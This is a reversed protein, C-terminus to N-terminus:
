KEENSALIKGPAAKEARKLTQVFKKLRSSFPNHHVDFRLKEKQREKLDTADIIRLLQERKQRNRVNKTKLESQVSLINKDFREIVAVSDLMKQKREMKTRATEQAEATQLCLFIFPIILFLKKM